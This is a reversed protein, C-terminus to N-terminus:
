TSGKTLKHGSDHIMLAAQTTLINRQISINFLKSNHKSQHAQQKPM